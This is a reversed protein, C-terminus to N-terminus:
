CGDAELLKLIRKAQWDDANAPEIILEDGTKSFKLITSIEIKLRKGSLAEGPLKILVGNRRLYVYFPIQTNLATFPAGKILTLEGKSQRSFGGYDLPKGNLVLPNCYFNGTSRARAVLENDQMVKKARESDPAKIVYFCGQSIAPSGIFLIKLITRGIFKNFLKM